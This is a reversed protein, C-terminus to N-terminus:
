FPMKFFLNKMADTLIKGRHIGTLGFHPDTHNTILGKEFLTKGVTNLKFGGAKRQTAKVASEPFSVSQSRVWYMKNAIPVFALAIAYDQYGEHQTVAIGNEISIYLDGLKISQASLVRNIAGRLIEADGFPQENIDSQADKCPVVSYNINPYACGPTEIHDAFATKVANLKIESGSGVVIKLSNLQTM